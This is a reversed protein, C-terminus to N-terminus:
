RDFCSTRYNRAVQDEGEGEGQVQEAVDGLEAGRGIPPQEATLAAPVQGLADVAPDTRGAGTSALLGSAPRGYSHPEPRNRSGRSEPATSGAPAACSARICAWGLLWGVDDARRGAGAGPRYGPRVPSRGPSEDAM